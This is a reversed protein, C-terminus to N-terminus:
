KRSKRVKVSKKFVKQKAREEKGMQVLGSWLGYLLVQLAIVVVFGARMVYGMTDALRETIHEFSRYLVLMNTMSMIVTIAAGTLVGELVAKGKTTYGIWLGTGLCSLLAILALMYVGQNGSFWPHEGRLFTGITEISFAGYAETFSQGSYQLFLLVLFIEVIFKIIFSVGVGLIVREVSLGPLIRTQAAPKTEEKAESVAAKPRGARGGRRHDLVEYVIAYLVPIVPLIKYFDSEFNLTRSLSIIGFAGGLAITFSLFLNGMIRFNYWM